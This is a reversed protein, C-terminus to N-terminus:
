AKRVQKVLDSAEKAMRRIEAFKGEAIMGRKAMWSGGVAHIKEMQLYEALNELKVGGTPIFRLQPFPDSLAKISKLGGVTEAPFFKLIELGLNIGRIMETPTVAGALIPVENRQAWVVVEEVMGPTVLFQAGAECAAQAQERSIVTGAGVIVQPVERAVVGISELAADTRLTIEAIPLGGALLSEALPKAHLAADIELVPIVGTKYFDDFISYKM